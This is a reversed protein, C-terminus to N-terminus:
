VPSYNSILRQDYIDELDVTVPVVGGYRKELAKILSKLNKQNSIGWYHIIIGKRERRTLSMMSHAHYGYSNLRQREPSRFVARIRVDWSRGCRQLTLVKKGKKFQIIGVLSSGSLSMHGSEFCTIGLKKLEKRVVDDAEKKSTKRLIKM